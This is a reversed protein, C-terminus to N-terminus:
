RGREAETVEEYLEPLRRAQEADNGFRAWEYAETFREVRQRLPADEIKRLWERPTESSSKRWGQTGLRRTLREYWLSAALAPAKEPHARLKRRATWGLLNRANVLLLLAVLVSVTSLAWRRPAQALQGHVKRAKGLLADYHEQVWQRSREVMTRSGRIANEGLTRQHSADYNIVWERWFSELADLYLMMRNWGTQTIPPAAPTPDFSIWGYGPFYAEVWSHASSARIVYTSTLDNFETTRFGNVVRSPIGLTRLMVAMSSAFYECHGQKRQFLFNALPDKPVTRPLELTYGFNTMLYRELAAARDYNNAASATVQRALQPIRLDVSRLLLYTLAFEPPYVGAAKRLEAATPQSLDSEADYLSIPHLPDLDYVADNRDTAVLRYNGILYRPRSALFFVSTGVPEMLVRYHIRHGNRVGSQAPWLAFRGDGQRSLNYQESPNSWSRGDFASLAIGRWKLDYAGRADGDIQVHMVVANSQQIQGIRGLQVRDSFGTAMDGGTAYSSLYGASMRPLLFFIGCAGVIILLVLVPSAAALFSAMRRHVPQDGPDRVPVTAGRMSRRMEMLVFTAVAMLIFGAFAFLFVSDVTLVAAALVMLFSLIALMYHDRDKQVSFIRIVMGFLALRVTATLFNGSLTTLDAIYFIGYGLTLYTVWREPLQAETRKALLVGRVLLAMGVLMATPLDLAATSALTGFGTLVMLYLSVQFYREIALPLKSSVSHTNRLPFM